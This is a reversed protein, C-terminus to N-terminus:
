LSNILNIFSHISLNRFSAPRMVALRSLRLVGFAGSGFPLACGIKSLMKIANSHM